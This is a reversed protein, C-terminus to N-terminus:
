LVHVVLFLAIVCVIYAETMYIYHEAMRGFNFSSPDRLFRRCRWALWAYILIKGVVAWPFLRFILISSCLFDVFTIMLVFRVPKQYGFLKSYTVYDTEDAPARIKRAVEWVLGDFYMAFLILANTLSLLGIGYRLCTYSIVYLNLCLQVPNHTVLALMLNSQIIERSFFWLSMLIGYIMLFAFYGLNNMFFLNLPVVILLTLTALAAIDPIKVKGSPVVREPFLLKDTQADKIDDAIRLLLLFSFITAAGVWEAGTLQFALQGSELIVLFYVEFFLLVAVLARPLPPYMAKLYVLWRGVV